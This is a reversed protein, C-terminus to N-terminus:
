NSDGKRKKFLRSIVLSVVLIVASALLTHPNFTPLGSDLNEISAGAWVFAITGPISGLITALIFPVWRIRLFGALYNILDYPLFIFRM